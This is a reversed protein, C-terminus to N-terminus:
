AAQEPPDVEKKFHEQVHQVWLDSERYYIFSAALLGTAVFAHGTIGILMLWSDEPPVRWLLDLGQSLLVVLMFFTMTTPLTMKTILVSKKVSSWASRQNVFVGHASFLLPFAMWLMISGIILTVTSGPAVGFLAAALLGCLAPISIGFMLGVWMLALLIVQGSARPWGSIAERWPLKDDLGVGAVLYFYLAGIVLGVVSIALYLLIATGISSIEIWAPTGNPTQNPFGSAMLSPIGVPYSRLTSLLSFREAIVMWIERAAEFMEATDPAEPRAQLYVALWSEIIKKLGLRPSLWILLDIGIPFLLLGIHNTVADFGALLTKFVRPPNPSTPTTLTEMSSIIKGYRARTKPPP